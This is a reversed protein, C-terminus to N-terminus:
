RQNDSCHTSRFNCINTVSCDKRLRFCIYEQSNDCICFGELLNLFQNWPLFRDYWKGNPGYRLDNFFIIEKNITTVFNFKPKSPCFFCNLMISLPTLMFSKAWHALRVMFLNSGKGLGKTITNLVQRSLGELAASLWWKTCPAHTKVHVNWESITSKVAGGAVRRLEVQTWRLMRLWGSQILLIKESSETTVCRKKYLCSLKKPWM